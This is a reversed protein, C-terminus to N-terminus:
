SHSKLWPVCSRRRRLRSVDVDQVERDESDHEMLSRLVGVHKPCLQFGQDTSPRMPKGDAGVMMMAIIDQNRPANWELYWMWGPPMAGNFKDECRAWMCSHVMPKSVIAEERGDKLTIIAHEVVTPKKTKRVKSKPM